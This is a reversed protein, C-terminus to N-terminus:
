LKLIKATQNYDDNFIKVIYVGNPQESLDIEIYSIYGDNIKALVLEGKFNFVHIIAPLSSDWVEEIFINNRKQNDYFYSYRNKYIWTDSEYDMNTQLIRLGQGDYSYNTKSSNTWNTGNGSMYTTSSLKNGPTWTNISHLIQNLVKEGGM